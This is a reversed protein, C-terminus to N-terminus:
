DRQANGRQLASEPRRFDLALWEGGADIEAIRGVDGNFMGTGM